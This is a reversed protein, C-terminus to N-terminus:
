FLQFWLNSISVAQPSLYTGWADNGEPQVEKSGMDEHSLFGHMNVNRCSYQHGPRVTRGNVCPNFSNFRKYLSSGGFWGRAKQQRRQEQKLAMLREMQVEGSEVAASALTAIAAAIVISLKM